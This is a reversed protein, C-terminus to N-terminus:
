SISPPEEQSTCDAPFRRPRVPHKAFHSQKRRSGNEHAPQCRHLPLAAPSIAPSPDYRIMGPDRDAPRQSPQLIGCDSECGNLPSRPFFGDSEPPVPCIRRQTLRSSALRTELFSKRPSYKEPLT